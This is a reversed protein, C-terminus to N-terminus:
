SEMLGDYDPDEMGEREKQHENLITKLFDEKNMRQVRGTDTGM